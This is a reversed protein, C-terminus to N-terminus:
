FRFGLLVTVSAVQGDELVVKTALDGTFDGVKIDVEIALTVTQGTLSFNWHATGGEFTITGDFGISRTVTNGAAFTQSYTFGVQIGMNGRAGSFQGGITLVAGQGDTKKLQVTLDGQFNPKSIAAEFTLTTAKVLEAGTSSLQRAVVYNIRFDPDIFLMGQLEVSFSRSNKMYTYSFQNTSARIALAEPFQFTGTSGDEKNFVFAAKATGDTSAQWGGVFGLVNTALPSCKDAFTYLFRGLPDAVFGDITSTEDGIKVTLNHNEDIGWEPRLEFLFAGAKNPRVRMVANVTEYSPRQGGAAVLTLAQQGDSAMTLQNKVNFSWTVAFLVTSGDRGLAAIRNTKDTSWTGFPADNRSVNGQLDFDFNDGGQSLRFAPTAAASPQTAM